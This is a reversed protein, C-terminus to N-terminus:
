TLLQLPELFSRAYRRFLGPFVVRISLISRRLIACNQLFWSANLPMRRVFFPLAM